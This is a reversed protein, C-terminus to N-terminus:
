GSNVIRTGVDEGIDRTGCFKPVKKRCIDCNMMGSEKELNGCESSTRRLRGRIERKIKEVCSKRALHQVIEITFNIIRSKDERTCKKKRNSRKSNQQPESIEKIKKNELQKLKQM